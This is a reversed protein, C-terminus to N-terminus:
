AARVIIGLAALKVTDAAIQDSTYGSPWILGTDVVVAPGRPMTVIPADVGDPASAPRAAIAYPEQSGDIAASDMQVVKGSGAAYAVTVKGIDGPTLDTSGDALTFKVTGDYAVAVNGVGDLTGDPKYVEFEGANTAAANGVIKYDGPAATATAAPSALTIAGRSGGIDTKTVTQAGRGIKGLVTGLEISRAAGSGALLTDQEFNFDEDVFWKLVASQLKPQTVTKAPMVM